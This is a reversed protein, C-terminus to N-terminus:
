RIEDPQRCPFTVELTEGRGLVRNCASGHVRITDDDVFSWGDATDHELVEGDLVVNGELARSGGVRTGLEITCNRVDGIVGKLQAALARPETDAYLPEQAEADVGFVLDPPLGAAANAMRQLGLREIAPSVGVARVIIGQAYAREVAAVAEELGNQPNPEACTDPVGDTLLLVYKAPDASLAQLNAVSADIADGTPTDGGPMPESGAYFQRVSDTDGLQVEIRDLLPCERGRNYGDLSTYLTLGIRANDDLWALLGDEPDIIAQRLVDWRTSAGFAENMSASQDILLMVTPPTPTYRRRIDVCGRQLDDFNTAPVLGQEPFAPRAPSLGLEEAPDADLSELDLGSRAGCAVLLCGGWLLWCRKARSCRARQRRDWSCRRVMM